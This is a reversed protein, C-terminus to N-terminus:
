VFEATEEEEEPSLEQRLVRNREDAVWASIAGDVGEAVSSQHVDVQPKLEPNWCQAHGKVVELDVALAIELAESRPRKGTTGEAATGTEM